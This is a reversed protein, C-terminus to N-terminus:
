SQYLGFAITTSGGEAAAVLGGRAANDVTVPLHGTRGLPMLPVSERIPQARSRASDEMTAAPVRLQTRMRLRRREHAADAADAQRDGLARVIQKM